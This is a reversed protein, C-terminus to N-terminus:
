QEDLYQNIASKLIVLVEEMTKGTVQAGASDFHGGGRLKELILQVNITGTSRASVHITDGIKVLAFAADVNRVSILREAAKSAAVRDYKENTGMSRAIALNGRYITVNEPIFFKAEALHQIIDDEFFSRAKESSAGASRLFYAASFTRLGTTRTFNMTDLMIGSLLVNAEEGRLTAESLQNEIMESVLESASSASPDIYEILLPRGIESVKRHHDIVVIDSVSKAIDPSEIINFNNADVIILLTDASVADLGSQASLFVNKYEPLNVIDSACSKFTDCETDTIIRVTSSVGGLEKALRAMGICAGISDCDPNKHGMIMIKSHSRILEALKDAIVRSSVSGQKQMGKARGGFFEFASDKKIVVQDGGRRLATDLAIQANHERESVTSGIGSIGMSVTVSVSGDGLDEERIKKLIPFGDKIMEELKEQAMFLLYKDRDYECVVGGVSDAWSKIHMELTNAAQRYDVKVYQALEELNDLVIYAVVLNERETKDKLDFLETTEDFVTLHYNRLENRGSESPVKVTYSKVLFRREGIDYELGSKGNALRAGLEAASGIVEGGKDTGDAIAAAKEIRDDAKGSKTAEILEEINFPCFRSMKKGFLPTGTANLLEGLASNYWIITGDDHTIVTPIDSQEILDTMAAGNMTIERRMATYQSITIRSEIVLAVALIVYVAAVAIGSYLPPIKTFSSLLLQLAVCVFGAIVSLLILLDPDIKISNRKKNNKM